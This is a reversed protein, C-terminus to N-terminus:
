IVQRSSVRISDVLGNILVEYGNDDRYNRQLPGM